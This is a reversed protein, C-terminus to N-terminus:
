CYRLVANKTSTYRVGISYVADLICLPLSSYYYSDSLRANKLNLVEECYLLLNDNM